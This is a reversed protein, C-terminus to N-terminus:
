GCLSKATSSILGVIKEDDEEEEEGSDEERTGEGEVSM